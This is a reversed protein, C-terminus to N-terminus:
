NGSLKKKLLDNLQQPNMKGGSAKMAQGVFFGFLKEKGARYEAVNDPNDTILKDILTEIAGTDTVQKLGQKDIIVDVDSEGNWLAEFITKAIKGSITNDEIRQLLKAIQATSVPSETIDLNAKNLAASLEGMIWNTALKPQAKSEDVVTEFYIALARSSVLVDADYASLGYQDIFRQRKQHPLEPLESRVTNILEDTIVLPLLDPDPFYRYDNAEEKSRM